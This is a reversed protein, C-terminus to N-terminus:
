KQRWFLRKCYDKVIDEHNFCLNNDEISQILVFDLEAIDDGPVLLKTENGDLSIRYVLNVVHERPDTDVDSYESDLVFRGLEAELDLGCEEKFERAAAQKVTETRVNLFGGPLCWRNPHTDVSPDRKGILVKKNFADTAIVTATVAAHPFEYEYSM